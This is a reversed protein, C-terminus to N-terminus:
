HGTKTRTIRTGRELDVETTKYVVTVEGFKTYKVHFKQIRCVTFLFRYIWVTSKKLGYIAKM